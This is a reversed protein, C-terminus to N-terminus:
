AYLALLPDPFVPLPKFCYLGSYKEQSQPPTDPDPTQQHPFAGVHRAIRLAAQRVDDSKLALEELDAVIEEVSWTPMEGEWAEGRGARMIAELPVHLITALRLAQGFSPVATGTEIKAIQSHGGYGVEQALTQQKM